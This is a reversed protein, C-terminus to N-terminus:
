KVVMLVARSKIRSKMMDKLKELIKVEIQRIRERTVGFQKAIAELSHPQYKDLGFRMKIITREKEDELREIVSRVYGIRESNVIKDIVSIDECDFIKDGITMDGDDSMEMETSVIDVIDSLAREVREIAAESLKTEKAIESITPERHFKKILKMRAKKYKSSESIFHVPFHIFNVNDGIKREINQRIWYTAYTSFKCGKSAKFRDVAKILGVNGEEILDQLPVKRDHKWFYKKAISVVLRLNCNIMKQRASENGRRIKRALQKEEKEDLLSFDKIQRFYISLTDNRKVKVSDDNQFDTMREAQDM